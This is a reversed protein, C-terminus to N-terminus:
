EVFILNLLLFTDNHSYIKRVEMILLHECSESLASLRLHEPIPQNITIKICKPSVKIWLSKCHMGTHTVQSNFGQGQHQLRWTRGISWYGSPPLMVWRTDWLLHLGVCRPPCSCRLPTWCCSWRHRSWQTWSSVLVVVVRVANSSQLLITKKKTQM